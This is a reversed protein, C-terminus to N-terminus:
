YTEIRELKGDKSYYKWTGTKTKSHSKKNIITEVQGTQPNVVDVTDLTINPKLYYQGTIRPRNNDHYETFTIIGKYLDHREKQVLLGNQWYHWTGEQEGHEYHGHAHRYSNEGTPSYIVWSGHKKGASDLQNYTCDNTQSFGIQWTSILIIVLITRM